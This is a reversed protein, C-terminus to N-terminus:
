GVRQVARVDKKKRTKEKTGFEGSGPILLVAPISRPADRAAYCVTQVRTVPDVIDLYYLRDPDLSPLHLEQTGDVEARTVPLGAVRESRKLTVVGAQPQAHPTTQFLPIELM